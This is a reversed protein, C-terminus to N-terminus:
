KPNMDISSKAPIVELLAQDKQACALHLVFAGFLCCKCVCLAFCFKLVVHDSGSAVETVVLDHGHNQQRFQLVNNSAFLGYGAM